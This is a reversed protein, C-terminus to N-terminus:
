GCGGLHLLFPSVVTEYGRRLFEAYYDPDYDGSRLLEVPTGGRKKVVYSVTQGPSVVAGMEELMKAADVHKLKKEYSSTPASLSRRVTLWELGIEGVYVMKLYKEYIKRCEQTRQELEGPSHAEALKEILETQMKKVIPPTDRRRSEIGRCKIRGDAYVGFYRNNVPRGPITRSELFAIWRFTGEYGVPLGLAKELRESFKRYDEESADERWIWLCDVIGHLVKFGNEEALKVSKLLTDRALACVALHAERSGFKAKKYGLYGFSTVLIWKLADSRAKFVKNGTQQYLKKYELRRKLPKEVARPVIGRWRRCVHYGIEPVHNGSCCRCNVTEGSINHKMMLMPYLSHFDIEGVNWYVGPRHDLIWGGRDANMLEAGTACFPRGGDAPILVDNIFAQHYQLSTMCRGITYRATDQVPVRVVRSVELLGDLGTERYLMSNDADIHLRGRLKYGAFSHYVRGYSTYSFGRNRAPADKERGLRLGVGNVKARYRLYSMLFSDGGKTVVVDVDLEDLLKELGTLVSDEGGELVVEEGDISIRATKVRDSFRPLPGASDLIVDLFAVRLFSVDYFLNDVPEAAKYVGDIKKVAILPALDFRYLFEQSAPVDVNFARIGRHSWREEVFDALFRKESPPTEVELVDVSGKGLMKKVTKGVVYRESLMKELEALTERPGTFFLRPRWRVFDKLVHNGDRVWVVVGDDVSVVDLLYIEM